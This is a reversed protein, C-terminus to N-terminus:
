AARMDVCGSFTADPWWSRNLAPHDIREGVALPTPLDSGPLNYTVSGVMYGQDVTYGDLEARSGDSRVLYARDNAVTM